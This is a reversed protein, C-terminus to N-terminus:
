PLAQANKNSVCVHFQSSCAQREELPRGLLVLLTTKTSFPLTGYSLSNTPALASPRTEDGEFLQSLDQLTPTFRLCALNTRLTPCEASLLGSGSEM